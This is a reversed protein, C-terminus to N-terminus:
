VLLYHFILFLGVLMVFVYFKIATDIHIRLFDSKIVTHGNLSPKQEYAILDLRM